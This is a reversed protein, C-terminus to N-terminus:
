PGDVALAAPRRRSHEALRAPGQARGKLLAYLMESRWHREELDIDGEARLPAPSQCLM